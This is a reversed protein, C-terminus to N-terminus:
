RTGQGDAELTRAGKLSNPVSYNNEHCAYEFQQYSNDRRYPFAITFPATYTEPDDVTVSYKLTDADVLTLREVVRRKPSQRARGNPSRMNDVAKFNTSEIVLTNGEWRGRPDGEWQGVNGNMHPRGDLPIIRANHIMESHIVVYGPTQVILKGNNYATPMMMGTVGRSVCRDGAEMTEAGDHLHERFFAATKRAEATMAPMRGDKPEVLLAPWDGALPKRWYWDFWYLAYFGVDDPGTSDGADIRSKATKEARAQLEEQTFTTRGALEKPLELPTFNAEENNWMGQINPQGDALRAPTFPKAAKAAQQAPVAAATGIVFVIAGAFATLSGRKM